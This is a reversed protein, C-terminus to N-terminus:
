RVLQIRGTQAPGCDEPHIEGLGGRVPGPGRSLEDLDASADRIFVSRGEGARRDLDPLSVRGALVDMVHIPVIRGDIGVERAFAPQHGVGLAVELEERDLRSRIRHEFRAPPPTRRVDMERDKPLAPHVAEHCLDEERALRQIFGVQQEVGNRIAFDALAEDELELSCGHSFSCRRALHIRHLKRRSKTRRPRRCVGSTSQHISERGYQVM